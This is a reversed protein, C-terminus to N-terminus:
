QNGRNATIFLNHILLFWDDWLIDLLQASQSFPRIKNFCVLQKTDTNVNSSSDEDDYHIESKNNLWKLECLYGDRGCTFVKQEIFFILQTLLFIALYLSSYTSYRM